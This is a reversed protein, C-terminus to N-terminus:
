HNKLIVPLLVCRLGPYEDAGMDIGHLLPRSQGDFDDLPAGDTSGRDIVPSYCLLHYDDAGPEVFYPNVSLDHAGPSVGGCYCNGSCDWVDNYDFVGNLPTGEIACAHGVIINNTVTPSPTNWMFIGENAWNNPALNNYAITNNVLTPKSFFDIYLGSGNSSSYNRAIVNNILTPSSYDDIFIGGGHSATNSIIRNGDLIPAATSGIM